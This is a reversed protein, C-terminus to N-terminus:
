DSSKVCRKTLPARLLFRPGTRPVGHLSRCDRGAPITIPKYRKNEVMEFTKFAARVKKILVPTEQPFIFPALDSPSLNCRAGILVERLQMDVGFTIHYLPTKPGDLLVIARLEREYSWERAKHYLMQDIFDIGNQDSFEDTGLLRSDIYQVYGLYDDHIDFGLCLGEHKSAYHAWMVPSKWNDSFCILGFKENATEIFTKSRARADRHGVDHCALEFPDNLDEFRSVKMRQELLIHRLAVGMSTMYYVRM